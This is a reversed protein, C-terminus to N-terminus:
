GDRLYRDDKLSFVPLAEKTAKKVSINCM